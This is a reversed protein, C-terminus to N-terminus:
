RFATATSRSSAGWRARTAAWNASGSPRGGGHLHARDLTASGARPLFRRECVPRRCLASRGGAGPQIADRELCRHSRVAGEARAGPGVAGIDPARQADVLQRIAHFAQCLRPNGPRASEDGALDAPTGRGGTSFDRQQRGSRARAIAGSGRCFRPQCPTPAGRLTLGAHTNRAHNRILREAHATPQGFTPPARAKAQWNQIQPEATPLRFRRGWWSRGTGGSTRRAWSAPPNACDATGARAM